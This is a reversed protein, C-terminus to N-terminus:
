AGGLDVCSLCFDGRTWATCAPCEYIGARYKGPLREVGEGLTWDELLDLVRAKISPCGLTVSAHLDSVREMTRDDYVGMNRVVGVTGCALCKWRFFSQPEGALLETGPELELELELM